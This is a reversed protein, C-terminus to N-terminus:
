LIHMAEKIKLQFSTSASDLIKFCDESCLSGCNVSGKLHKFIHSNKDSALHERIRTAFHRNTEGIYQKLIRSEAEVLKWNFILSAMCRCGKPAATM